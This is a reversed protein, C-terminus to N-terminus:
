KEILIQQQEASINAKIAATKIQKTRIAAVESELNEIQEVSLEKETEIQVRQKATLGSMAQAYREVDDHNWEM